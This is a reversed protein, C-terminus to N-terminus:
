NTPPTRWDVDHLNHKDRWEDLMKKDVEYMDWKGDTMAKTLPDPRGPEPPPQRATGSVPWADEPIVAMGAFFAIIINRNM